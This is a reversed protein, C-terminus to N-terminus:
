INDIANNMQDALYDDFCDYESKIYGTFDWSVIKGNNCDICELWEDVNEIVVLNDPLGEERYDLTVDVFILTGTLGVGLTEIGCIGGHGFMKLFDVYQKPLKVGLVAEANDIMADSVNTYNFDGKQEYKKIIDIITKNM